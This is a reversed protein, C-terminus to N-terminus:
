RKAAADFVAFLDDVAARVIVMHEVDPYEKFTLGDGASKALADRLAKAGRNAFDNGGVGVFVRVNEFAAPKRVRGGGGLAAVAAFKGPHDQALEVAQAAGMSHGVVFVRKPDIPYREGLKALIDAVPPPGGLFGLGARPSVVLWGRKECAKVVCGAGYGEFYLNESGGMGHLAVVVPVPTDKTLGKPVFLRCPTSKDKATPVTLSHDGPRNAFYLGGFLGTLTMLSGEDTLRHVRVDNEPYDGANLGRLLVGRSRLTALEIGARHKSLDDIQRFPDTADRSKEGDQSKERHSASVGVTSTLAKKGDITAEMWLYQDGQWGPQPFPVAVKAPLKGLPVEVPKGLGIRLTVKAGDPPGGKVPYFQRVEVRLEETVSDVLRKEPVACLSHLWRVGAAPPDASLLAFRADDLTRAADGLRFTLFQTTADAVIALARKKRAADTTTEWAAEFEKMRRGVEYREVQATASGPGAFVLVIAPVIIRM